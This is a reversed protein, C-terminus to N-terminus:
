WYISVTTPASYVTPAFGGQVLIEQSISAGTSLALSGLTEERLVV